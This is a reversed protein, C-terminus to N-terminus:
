TAREKSAIEIFKAHWTQPHKCGDWLIRVNGSRTISIVTGYRSKGTTRLGCYLIGILSPKVSCGQKMKM